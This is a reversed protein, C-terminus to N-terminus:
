PCIRAQWRESRLSLPIRLAAAAKAHDSTPTQRIEVTGNRLYGIGIASTAPQQEIFRRIDSLQLGVSSSVADDVLVYLELSPM